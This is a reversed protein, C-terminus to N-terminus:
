PAEGAFPLAQQRPDPSAEALRLLGLEHRDPAAEIGLYRRGERICAVGLTARGAYLDLVMGDPAAYAAVLARQMEIPKEEAEARDEEQRTSPAPGFTRATGRKYVLCHETDGIAHHGIGRGPKNWTLMTLYTWCWGRGAAERVRAAAEFWAEMMPNTIWIILYADVAVVDALDRVIRAFTEPTAHRMYHGDTAGNVGTNDYLWPPDMSVLGIGAGQLDALAAEVTCLRLEARTIDPLTHRAQEIREKRRADLKEDRKLKTEARVERSIQQLVKPDADRLVELQRAPPLQALDAAVRAPVDGAVVAEALEPVGQRAAALAYELTRPAVQAAEALAVSRKGEGAAAVEPPAALVARAVIGARQSPTLHRRHINKSIVYAAPDAGSFQVAHPTVGVRRCAERRSRGDLLQGEHIVLAELLGNARIDAALEALEAEPMAPLREAEPHVPLDFLPSLAVTREAPPEPATREIWEQMSFLEVPPPALRLARIPARDAPVAAHQEDDLLECVAASLWMVTATANPDNAKSRKALALMAGVASAGTREMEERLIAVYDGVARRYSAVDSGFSRRLTDRVSLLKATVEVAQAVGVGGREPTSIESRFDVADSASSGPPTSSEVPAAPTEDVQPPFEGSKGGLEDAVSVPESPASRRKPLPAPIEEMPPPFEASNIRQPDVGGVEATRTETEEVSVRIPDRHGVVRFVGPRNDMNRIRGAERLEDVVGAAEIMGCGLARMVLSQTLTGVETVAALARDHREGRAEVDAVASGVRTWDLRHPAPPTADTIEVLARQADATTSALYCHRDGQVIAYGSYITSEDGRGYFPMADWSGVRVVPPIPPGSSSSGMGLGFRRDWDHATTMRWLKVVRKTLADHVAVRGGNVADLAAVREAVTWGAPGGFGLWRGDDGAVDYVATGREPRYTKLDSSVLVLRVVAERGRPRHYWWGPCRPAVDEFGAGRREVIVSPPTPEM